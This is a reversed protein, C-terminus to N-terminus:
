SSMETASGTTSGTGAPACAPCTVTAARRPWANWVSAAILMGVGGVTTPSSGLVFKGVLVVASGVLGVLLPGHKGHRRAGRALAGIAVVLFAATLPVLYATTGLFGLGLASLVGAYAPWCLPCTLNPLLAAAIGPLVLVSAFSVRRKDRSAASLNSAIQQQAESLARAILRIPPVGRRGGEGDYLRCSTLGEVPQAGAVDKGEVLVTPSGFSRLRAPTQPCSGDWETWRAPMGTEAFAWLLNTRAAVVNPCGTDYVLEVTLSM